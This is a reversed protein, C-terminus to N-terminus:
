PIFIAKSFLTRAKTWRFKTEGHQEKEWRRASNGDPAHHSTLGVLKAQLAPPFCCFFLLFSRLLFYPHLYSGPTDSLPRRSLNARWSLNGLLFIEGQIDKIEIMQERWNLETAWEHEKCGWPTCCALSGQAPTWGRHTWGWHIWPIRLPSPM